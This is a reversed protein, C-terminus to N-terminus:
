RFPLIPIQAKNQTSYQIFYCLEKKSRKLIINLIWKREAILARLRNGYEFLSRDPPMKANMM